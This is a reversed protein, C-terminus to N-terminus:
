NWFVSRMVIINVQLYRRVQMPTFCGRGSVGTESSTNM